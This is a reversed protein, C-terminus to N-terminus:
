SSGLKIKRTGILALSSLLLIMLIPSTSPVPKPTPITTTTPITTPITTTTVSITTTTPIITSTTTTSVTTTTTPVTTSTTTTTQITTTSTTLITTTTSITTTSTSTTTTSTTTSTTTEKVRYNDGKTDLKVQYEGCDDPQVTYANICFAGSADVTVTGSAVVINPDCSAGGPNGTISWDYNGPSFGDGNIYVTEGIAYENADQSIDGCDNRTTWIADPSDTFTTSATNTFDTAIVTYTGTELSVTYLYTFSGLSNTTPFVYLIGGGPRIIKLSILHLPIFGEGTILVTNTPRYDQKDTYLVAAFASSFFVTTFLVIGLGLNFIIKRGEM